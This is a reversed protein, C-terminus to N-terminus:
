NDPTRYVYVAGRRNNEFYAGVVVTDGDIAVSIGFSDDAAADSATLKAVEDYTAGGDTTLFVYLAGGTGAGTAGIVVTAGDIAVSYGFDDSWVGDSATLKIETHTGWNDTTRLVYAAAGSMTGVVVTDGDIAVSWGFYDGEAADSATLKTETHTDWNDTTRYVYVAGRRNNEFYAGVLVTDGDIAVHRGFYDSSAADSATLKAVEDYTAGGDTTRLVYVSGSGGGADEDGYAGVVVTNGDIAVSVGFQDGSAADSATVKLQGFNATSLLRNSGRLVSRADLLAWADPAGVAFCIFAFARM